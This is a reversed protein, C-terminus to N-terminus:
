HRPSNLARATQAIPHLETRSTTLPLGCSGSDVFASLGSAGVGGAVSRNNRLFDGHGIDQVDRDPRFGRRERITPYWVRHCAGFSTAETRERNLGTASDAAVVGDSDSGIATWDTGGRAQPNFADDRLRTLFRSGGIMEACQLHPCPRATVRSGGHPTGLTVVDEVLLFPPFDPHGDEVRGVAERIILGGMSHAAVDVSVGRKSYTEHIWWAMHYALHSISARTTHRTGGLHGFNRNEYNNGLGPKVSDNISADCGSDGRFYGVAVLPRERFGNATFYTKLDRWDKRCDFGPNVGSSKGDIGHILVVPTPERPATWDVQVRTQEEGPDPFDNADADRWVVVTDTRVTSSSFTFAVVGAANSQCLTTSCPLGTYIVVGGSRLERAARLTVGPAPEGTARDRIDATVTHNRGVPVEAFDPKADLPFSRLGDGAALIYPVGRVGDPGSFSASDDRAIALPQFRGPYSTFREHISCSWGSLVADTLGDVAPHQAIIHADNNCAAGQVTFGGPELGDLLPVPTGAPAGDYAGLTIYLGTKGPISTAFALGREVLARGGQSAHDVPDTGIIIQNGSIVSGWTRTSDTAAQFTAETNGGTDGIVLARYSAFEGSSMGRWTADSVIVPTLGLATVSQAETSAQGGPVSSGLILVENPAAGATAAFALAVAGVLGAFWRYTSL